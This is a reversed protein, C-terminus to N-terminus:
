RRTVLIEYATGAASGKIQFSNVETEISLQGRREITFFTTGGDFSALLNISSANSAPNSILIATTPSSPTIITATTGVTGNFHQPIGKLTWGDLGRRSETPHTQSTIKRNPFGYGDYLDLKLHGYADLAIAGYDLDTSTLAVEADNRVGLILRGRDGSTHPDDEAFFYGDNNAVNVIWPVTAQYADTLVHGASTVKVYYEYGDYGDALVVVDTDKLQNKRFTKNKVTYSNM